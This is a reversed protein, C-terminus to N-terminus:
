KVVSIRNRNKKLVEEKQRSRKENKRGKRDTTFSIWIIRSKKEKNERRCNVL